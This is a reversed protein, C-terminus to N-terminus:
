SYYTKSQINNIEMVSATLPKKLAPSTLTGVCIYRGKHSTQLPDFMLTATGDATYSVNINDGNSVAMGGITWTANPSNILGDVTKSATCSLSYVLGARAIGSSTVNATVADSPVTYTTNFRETQPHM